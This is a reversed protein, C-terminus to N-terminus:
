RHVQAPVSSSSASSNWRLVTDALAAEYERKVKRANCHRIKAIRRWAIGRQRFVASYACAWMLRRACISPQSLVIRLTLDYDDVQHTSAPALRPVADGDAYAMWDSMVEPWYSGRPRMMAAPMRRETEAAALLLEHLEVNSIPSNNTM